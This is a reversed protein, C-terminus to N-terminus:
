KVKRITNGYEFFKTEYMPCNTAEPVEITM